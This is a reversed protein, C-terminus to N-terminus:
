GTYRAEYDGSYREEVRENVITQTEPVTVLEKKPQLEVWRDVYETRVRDQYIQEAPLLQEVM